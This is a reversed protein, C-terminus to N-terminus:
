LRPHRVTSGARAAVDQCRHPDGLRAEGRARPSMRSLVWAFGKDRLIEAGVGLARAHNGAVEQCFDFAAAMTLRDAQDVDWTCVTFPEERVYPM